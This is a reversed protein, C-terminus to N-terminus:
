LFMETCTPRLGFFNSFCQDSAVEHYQRNVFNHCMSLLPLKLHGVSLRFPPWSTSTPMMCIWFNKTVYCVKLPFLSWWILTFIIWVAILERSGYTCCCPDAIRTFVFCVWRMMRLLGPYKRSHMSMSKRFLIPLVHVMTLQFTKERFSLVVSMRMSDSIEYGWGTSQPFVTSLLSFV